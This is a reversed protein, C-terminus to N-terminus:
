FRLYLFMLGTLILSLGIIKSLTLSEKFIIIGMLSVIVYGLALFPYAFSLELKRLSLFWLISSLGYLLSAIIFYRNLIISILDESRLRIAGSKYFFQGLAGLCIAILLYVFHKEM